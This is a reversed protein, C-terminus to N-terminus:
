NYGYPDYKDSKGRNCDMCLTRLNSPETRGGKSVPLIHDVELRAGESASRGCITCRFGDRRLIDYRLSSTMKQREYEASHQYRRRAELMKYLYEADSLSYIQEERYTNRGKPSQYHVACFFEPETVPNAMQADCLMKERKRFFRYPVKAKRAARRDGWEPLREWQSCYFAYLRENERAARLVYAFGNPNDEMKKTLFREFNFGDFQTKSSVYEDYSYQPLVDDYFKVDANLKQIGRFRDSKKEVRLAHLKQRERLAGFIFLLSAAVVVAGWVEYGRIM